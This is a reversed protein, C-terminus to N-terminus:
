RCAHFTCLAELTSTRKWQAGNGPEPNGANSTWEAKVSKVGYYVAVCKNKWNQADREIQLESSRSGLRLEVDAVAPVILDVEGRERAARVSRDMEDWVSASERARDALGWTRHAALVPSLILLVTVAISGAAVTLWAGRRPSSFRQSLAVGALYGWMVTICILAFQPILRAREPLMDSTGYVGPIMCLLILVFGGAPALVLPLMARGCYLNPDNKHSISGLYYGFLAPLLVALLTTIPSSSITHAIFSATYRLSLGVLTPLNPPTPFYSQRIANGPSLIIVFAAILSGALGAVILPLALRKLTGPASKYCVIGGLVLGGTQMSLYTESFGAALFTLLMAAIVQWSAVGTTSQQRLVRGVFGAYMTLLILPPTYTLMGSQWYFSQVINPTSSLTAFIILEAIVLSYLLPQPWRALLAIQYLTWTMGTLWCTLAGVLILPVIAPGVMTALSLVFIFSYRGTWDQYWEAQSKIFGAQQFEAALCYDDAMYRTFCGIYAIALLPLLFSIVLLGGALRLRTTYRVM